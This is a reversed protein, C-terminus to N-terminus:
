GSTRGMIEVVMIRNHSYATSKVVTDYGGEIGTSAIGKAIEKALNFDWDNMQTSGEINEM